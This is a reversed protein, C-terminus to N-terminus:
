DHAVRRRIDVIIGTRDEELIRYSHKLYAYLLPNWEKFFASRFIYYRAGKERYLELEKSTIKKNQGVFWGKRDAYYLLDTQHNDQLLILDKRSTLVDVRQSFSRVSLNTRLREGVKYVSHIPVFLLLMSMGWIWKSRLPSVSRLRTRRLVESVALGAMLCGVPVIPLQYYEHIYNGKAVIFFSLVVGGIWALLFHMRPHRVALVIGALVLPYAGFAFMKEGLRTLFILRYFKFRLLYEFGILKDNSLWVGGLDTPAKSGIFGYWLFPAIFGVVLFLWLWINRFGKLGFSDKCLWLVPFVLYVATAKIGVALAFWLAALCGSAMKRSDLWKGWYFLGGVSFFLLASEPMFTRTYYVSMPLVAFLGVAVLAASQDLYKKGIAYLYGMTGMSFLVAILRGLWEKVGFFQYVIAVLYPFVQFEFEFYPHLDDLRPAFINMGDRFFNRAVMATLTQRWAHFDLLPNFLGWMRFAFGVALILILALVVRRENQRDVFKNAAKLLGSKWPTIKAEM